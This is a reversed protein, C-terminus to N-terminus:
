SRPGQLRARAQPLVKRYVFVAAAEIRYALADPLWRPMALLLRPRLGLAGRCSLRGGFDHAWALGRRHAIGAVMISLFVGFAFRAARRARPPLDEFAESLRNSVEAAGIVDDRTIPRARALLRVYADDPLKLWEAAVNNEVIQALEDIQEDSFSTCVGDDHNRWAILPEALLACPHRRSIRGWLELDEARPYRESYRFNGARLCALAIFASSHAFPASFCSFVRFSQADEVPVSWKKIVRGGANIVHANSGCLAHDPHARMFDFQTQLRGPFSLDDCDMRALYAGRALDIGENLTAVLGRNERSVVRIRSDRAAYGRVVALSADSSGDDMVLLEFDGFTQGLISEVAAGLFREGNYVPMLVTVQPADRSPPSVAGM